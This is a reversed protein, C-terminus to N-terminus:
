GTVNQKIMHCHHRQKSFLPEYYDTVKRKLDHNELTKAMEKGDRLTGINLTFYRYLADRDIISASFFLLYSAQLLLLTNM